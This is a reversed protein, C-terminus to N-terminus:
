AGELAYGAREIVARAERGRLYELFARAVPSSRGRELLVAEQRIPDHLRGPVSWHRHRASGLVSPLAVFGLEAGGGDVFRLAQAVSEARAVREALATWLGLRELTQQAARGYPATLPNAIALHEFHGDRLDAEGDDPHELAPGYLALRGIAYTFRSGGVAHGAVELAKPREDDAALLVHFPAGNEIQAALKGTSGASVEVRARGQQEFGRTLEAMPGLFNSAVAARVLGDERDRGRCAATIASSLAWILTGRRSVTRAM